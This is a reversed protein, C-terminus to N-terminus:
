PHLGPHPSSHPQHGEPAFSLRRGRREARGEGGATQPSRCGGPRRPGRPRLGRRRGAGARFAGAAAARVPQRDARHGRGSGRRRPSATEHGPLPCRPRACFRSWLSSLPQRRPKLPKGPSLSSKWLGLRESPSLHSVSEPAQERKWGGLLLCGLFNKGRNPLASLKEGGESSQNCRLTPYSPVPDKGRSMWGLLVGLPGAHKSDAGALSLLLAQLASATTRCRGTGSAAARQAGTQSPTFTLLDQM